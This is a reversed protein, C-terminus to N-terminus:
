MKRTFIILQWFIFDRMDRINSIYLFISHFPNHKGVPSLIKWFFKLLIKVWKGMKSMESMKGM